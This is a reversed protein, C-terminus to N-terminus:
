KRLRKFHKKQCHLADATYVTGEPLGLEEILRQATPIENTKEAIDVHALILQTRTCFASLLQLTGRQKVHDFSGRLVKGDLSVRHVTGHGSLSSLSQGYKRFISEMQPLDLVCFIDRIQSKSPARKWSLGFLQNLKVRRKLMFRGIDRYSSAGSLIAFISFLLVFKLQFRRGQARRPDPIKELHALLM